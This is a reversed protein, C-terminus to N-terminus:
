LDLILEDNAILIGGLCFNLKKNFWDVKFYVSIM